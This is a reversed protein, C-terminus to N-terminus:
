DGLCKVVLLLPFQSMAACLLCMGTLVYENPMLLSSGRETMKRLCWDWRAVLFCNFALIPAMWAALLLWLSNSAPGRLHWRPCAVPPHVLLLVAVTAASLLLAILIAARALKM